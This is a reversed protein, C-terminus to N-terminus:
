VSPWAISRHCNVPNTAQTVNFSSNNHNEQTIVLPSTLLTWVLCGLHLQQNEFLTNKYRICSTSYLIPCIHFSLFDCVLKGAVRFSQWRRAHQSLKRNWVCLESVMWVVNRSPNQKQPNGKKKEKKKQLAHQQYFVQVGATLITLNQETSHFLTTGNTGLYQSQQQFTCILARIHTSFLEKYPKLCHLPSSDWRKAQSLNVPKKWQQSKGEEFNKPVLVHIM